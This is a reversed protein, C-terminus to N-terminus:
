EMFEYERSGTTNEEKVAEVAARLSSFPWRNHFPVLCEFFYFCAESSAKLFRKPINANKAGVYTCLGHGKRSWKKKRLM